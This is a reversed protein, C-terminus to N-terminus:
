LNNALIELEKKTKEKMTSEITIIPEIIDIDKMEQLISKMVKGASPAWSGNEVIAVKRKQYNRSKLNNLFNEMPPFVGSNYSSSMVILKSYQFAKAVAQSFDERTIDIFHVNKKQNKLYTELYKGAELTNGHISSCVILIGEEEPEYSSWKSYKEIYFRLNDKLIFGHLPCIMKINLDQVKKLITQVQPGYKGVIGIYFRRAEDLWKDGEKNAGFKGFADATFLIKETEEYTFMVEPWHVMPAMFFKLSHAGIQLTDGEKVLVKRKEIDINEFYKPLINFTMANGVIKMNPYKKALVGINFAHDPELHSVILYDVEEGDIVKELKKLWINSVSKDITDLVVNKEDKILYSNYSMGNPVKYQSEFLDIKEDNAGIYFVNNKIEM